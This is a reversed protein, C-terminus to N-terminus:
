TCPCKRRFVTCSIYHPTQARFMYGLASDSSSLSDHFLVCFSPVWGFFFLNWWKQWVGREEKGREGAGWYTKEGVWFCTLPENVSDNVGNKKEKQERCDWILDFGGLKIKAKWALIPIHESFSLLFSSFLLSFCSPYRSTEGSMKKKCVALSNKRWSSGWLRGRLRFTRSFILLCKRSFRRPPVSFMATLVVVLLFGGCGFSCALMALAFCPWILLTSLFVPLVFIIRVVVGNFLVWEIGIWFGAAASVLM